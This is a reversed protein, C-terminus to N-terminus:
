PTVGLIVAVFWILFDYKLIQSLRELQPGPTNPRVKILAYVIVPYIGLAVIVVYIPNYRGLFYPLLVVVIVLAAILQFLIGAARKGWVTAVTRVHEKLDGDYDAMTKLIERALITVFVVLALVLTPQANGAAVGGMVVSLASMMAVILNGVLVTSKLKWSYIYLLGNALIAIVFSPLNIFAAVVISLLATVISFWLANRLTLQGSPLVRQPQNIRDIEVDLYDNFANSSATVLLTVVAALAVKDWAGTGAVYGGLFVALAGSLANFPRALRYYAKLKNM